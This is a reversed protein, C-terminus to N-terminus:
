SLGPFVDGLAARADGNLESELEDEYGDREALRLAEAEPSPDYTEDYPYPQTAAAIGQYTWVDGAQIMHMADSLLELQKEFLARNADTQERLQKSAVRQMLLVM